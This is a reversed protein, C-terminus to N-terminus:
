EGRFRRFLQEDTEKDEERRTGLYRHVAASESSEKPVEQHAERVARLAERLEAGSDRVGMAHQRGLRNGSFEAHILDKSPIFLHVLSAKLFNKDHVRLIGWFQPRLVRNGDRDCLVALLDAPFAPHAYPLEVFYEEEGLAQWLGREQDILICTTMSDM